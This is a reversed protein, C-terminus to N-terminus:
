DGDFKPLNSPLKAPIIPWYPSHFIPDNLIRSLDPLDLTSLFPFQKNVQPFQYKQPPLGMPIGTPGYTTQLYNSLGLLNSQPPNQTLFGGPNPQNPINGQFPVNSHFNQGRTPNM